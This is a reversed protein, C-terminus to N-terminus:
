KRKFLKKAMNAAKSERLRLYDFDVEVALAPRNELLLATVLEAAGQTLEKCTAGNNKKRRSILVRCCTASFRKKFQDHMQRCVREFKKKKLGDPGRHSLILGLALEGGALSGCSCGAGGMGHCFGSGLQIAMEESLDGGFGQNVTALVSESCCLGRAEYINAAREGALAIIEEVQGVLKEQNNVKDM